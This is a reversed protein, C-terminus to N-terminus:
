CFVAIAVVRVRALRVVRLSLSHTEGVGDRRRGGELRLSILPAIITGGSGDAVPRRRRRCLIRAEADAHGVGRRTGKGSRVKTEGSNSGVM